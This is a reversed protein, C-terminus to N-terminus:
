EEPCSSLIYVRPCYEYLEKPFNRVETFDEFASKEIKIVVVEIFSKM